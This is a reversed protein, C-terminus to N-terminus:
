SEDSPRDRKKGAKWRVHKCACDQDSEGNRHHRTKAALTGCERVPRRGRRGRGTIERRWRRCAKIVSDRALRLERAAEAASSGAVILREILVRYEEYRPKQHPSCANCETTHSNIPVCDLGCGTCPRPPVGLLRWSDRERPTLGGWVGQTYEPGRSSSIRHALALCAQRVPCTKCVKKALLTASNEAQGPSDPVMEVASGRCAALIQWGDARVSRV